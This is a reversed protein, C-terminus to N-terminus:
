DATAPSHHGKGLAIRITATQTDFDLTAGLSDLLAQAEDVIRAREEAPLAEGQNDLTVAFAEDGESVSLRITKSSQAHNFSSALCLWLLNELVFPHAKAPVPAGEEVLISIEKMAALRATLASTFHLIERLDAVTHPEHASHAFRNLRRIIADARQVQARIKESVTNLRAPDLPRGKEAMLILDGMLGANENIIALANKIEHSISATMRGFFHLGLTSTGERTDKM